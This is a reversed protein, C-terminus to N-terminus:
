EREGKQIRRRTTYADILDMNEIKEIDEVQMKRRIETVILKNM